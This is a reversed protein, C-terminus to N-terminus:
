AFKENVEEISRIGPIRDEEGVRYKLYMYQQHRYFDRLTKLTWGERKKNKVLCQLM